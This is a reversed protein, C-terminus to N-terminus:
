LNLNRASIPRLTRSAEFVESASISELCAAKGKATCRDRGEDACPCGAALFKNQFGPPLWEKLGASKRFITFTPIGLAVALHLVGSDGGFHLRCRQLLAALHGISLGDLCLLRTDPVAEALHNLQQTERPNAAATAVLQVSPDSDLLMRALEIWHGLPWEKLPTSANISLHISNAPINAAVSERASEPLRLDFRATELTMGAAALV